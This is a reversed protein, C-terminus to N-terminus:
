SFSLLEVWFLGWYATDSEIAVNNEKIEEFISFSNKILKKNKKNKSPLFYWM